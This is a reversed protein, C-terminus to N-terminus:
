KAEMPVPHHRPAGSLAELLAASPGVAGFIGGSMTITSLAHRGLEPSFYAVADTLTLCEYGRDNASRLTSDVCAEGGFGALVLHDIGRRRLEDDLPGGHFGDTGASRVVLDGEHPVPEPDPTETGAGPRLPAPRSRAPHVHQLLVVLGGAERVVAGVEAIRSAVRSHDFSAEMSSRQAGAVVLALRGPDLCGDYPWPYPTTAALTPM